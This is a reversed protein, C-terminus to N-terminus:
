TVYIVTAPDLNLRKLDDPNLIEGARMPGAAGRALRKHKVSGVRASGLFAGNDYMFISKVPLRVTQVSGTKTEVGRGGSQLHPM